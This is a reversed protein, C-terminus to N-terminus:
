IKKMNTKCLPCVSKFDFWKKSCEDCFAHTCKMLYFSNGTEFTNMCIVCYTEEIIQKKESYLSLNEIGIGIDIDPYGNDNNNNNNNNTELNLATNFNNEIMPNYLDVNSIRSTNHSYHEANREYDYYANGYSDDFNLNNFNNFNESNMDNNDNNDNDNNDQLICLETHSLYDFYKLVINCIGCTFLEHAYLTNMDMNMNMNM